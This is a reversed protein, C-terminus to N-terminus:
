ICCVTAVIHPPTCVTHRFTELTVQLGRVEVPVTILAVEIRVPDVIVPILVVPEHESAVRNRKM